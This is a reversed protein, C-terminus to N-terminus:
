KSNKNKWIRYGISLNLGRFSSFSYIDNYYFWTKGLVDKEGIKLLNASLEINCNKSLKYRFGGIVTLFTFKYEQSYKRESTYNGFDDGFFYHHAEEKGSGTVLSNGVLVKLRSDRKFSIAVLGGFSFFHSRDYVDSINEDDYAKRLNEQKYKKPRSYGFGTSFFISFENSMGIQAKSVSGWGNSLPMIGTYVDASVLPKYNWQSFISQSFFLISIFFAARM